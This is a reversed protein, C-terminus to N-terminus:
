ISNFNTKTRNITGHRNYYTCHAVIPKKRQLFRMFLFLLPPIVLCLTHIHECRFPSMQVWKSDTGRARYIFVVIFRLEYRYQYFCGFRFDISIWYFFFNWRSKMYFLVKWDAATTYVFQVVTRAREVINMPLLSQMPITKSALRTWKKNRTGYSIM